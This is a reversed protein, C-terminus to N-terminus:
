EVLGEVLSFEGPKKLKKELNRLNSMMVRSKSNCLTTYMQHTMTYNDISYVITYYLM